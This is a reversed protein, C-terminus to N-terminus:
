LVGLAQLAKVIEELAKSGFSIVFMGIFLVMIGIGLPKAVAKSIVYHTDEMSKQVEELLCPKKKIEDKLLLVEERLDKINVLMNQLRDSITEFNSNVKQSYAEIRDSVKEFNNVLQKILDKWFTGNEESINM